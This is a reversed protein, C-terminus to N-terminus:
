ARNINQWHQLPLKYLPWNKKPVILNSLNERVFSKDDASALHYYSVKWMAFQSGATIAYSVFVVTIEFKRVISMAAPPCPAGSTGYESTM